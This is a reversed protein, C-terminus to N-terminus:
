GARSNQKSRWLDMGLAVSRAAAVDDPHQFQFDASLSAWCRLIMAALPDSARLVFFPEDLEREGLQEEDTLKNPPEGFLGRGSTDKKAFPYGAREDLRDEPMPYPNSPHNGKRIKRM